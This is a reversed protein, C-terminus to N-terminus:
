CGIMGDDQRVGEGTGIVRLGSEGIGILSRDRDGEIM